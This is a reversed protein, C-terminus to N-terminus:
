KKGAPAKAGAAPAKAGAAPAAAGKAGAPAGKAGAAGAAAAGAAPAAGAAAEPTAATSAESIVAAPAAITAVTFDRDITPKVGNPLKVSSIHISTGMEQGTLDIEIAEPISEAPCLLEITHRVINLVGGAKMGPSAEQNVFHVPVEVTITANKGLRLFDVHIIFDRVVELQVDRPIVREKRGEIDINLLHSTFTGKQYLAFVEKYDVTILEPTKKDGYIVAPVRGKLRLSRVAGKSGKERAEAKLTLTEAM